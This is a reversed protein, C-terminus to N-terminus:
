HAEEEEVHTRKKEEEGEFHRVINICSYKATRKSEVQFIM